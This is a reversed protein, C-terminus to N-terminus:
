VVVSLVVVVRENLGVRLLRITAVSWDDVRHCFTVIPSTIVYSIAISSTSLVVYSFTVIVSISDGHSLKLATSDIVPEHVIELERQASEVILGTTEPCVTDNSKPSRYLLSVFM